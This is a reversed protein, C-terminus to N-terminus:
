TIGKIAAFGGTGVEIRIAAHVAAWSAGHVVCAVESIDGGPLVTHGAHVGDEGINGQIARPADDASRQNHVCIAVVQALPSFWSCRFPYLAQFRSVRTSTDSACDNAYRFFTM